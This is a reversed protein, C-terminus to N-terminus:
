RLDGDTAALGVVLRVTFGDTTRDLRVDSCIRHVTWLGLGGSATRTTPLLGAYPDGPGRGGDAVTAVARGAGTWLRLRVPRRGHVLANTVTESVAFVLDDVEDGGADLDATAARVADRAERPAPDVRDVVPTGAELPDPEGPERGLLFGVPERYRPNPRRHVGDATLLPHTALVDALVPAPATRTDYPCLGWLPIDAYAHNITAEYRAWWDWPAGTGPHPVEGVVRIRGAPDRDAADRASRALLKRNTEILSAPRARSGRDDQLLVVGPVAAAVEQLLATTPEGLGVFTPEGAAVGDQLFPLVIDRFEEDSGYLAATHVFRGHGAREGM